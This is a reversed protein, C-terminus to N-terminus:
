DADVLDLIYTKNLDMLSSVGVGFCSIRLESMFQKLVTVVAETSETAPRLLKGAIGVASAGLCMSKAVDLGNRIGGSAWCTTTPFARRIMSLSEVTTYGWNDFVHDTSLTERIDANLAIEIDAFRTGGRGAVDLVSVGASVLDAASQEDLGFGVEKVVVPVPSWACVQAIHDAIQKWNTDGRPQFIEQMPNLHLILADAEISDLIRSLDQVAGLQPLNVAGFNAFLPRDGIANRVSWNLGSLSGEQMSIRQSGVGMAVGVENCAEALHRNIRESESPGGTMSSVFIPAAASKGFFDTELDIESLNVNPLA